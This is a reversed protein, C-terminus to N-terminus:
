AAGLPDFDRPAADLRFVFGGAVEPFFRRVLPDGYLRKSFTVGSPSLRRALRSVM